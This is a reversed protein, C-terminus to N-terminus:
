FSNISYILLHACLKKKHNFVVCDEQPKLDLQPLLIQRLLDFHSLMWRPWSSRILCSIGTDVDCQKNLLCIALLLLLAKVKGYESSYTKCCTDKWQRAIRENDCCDSVCIFFFNSLQKKKWLSNIKSNVIVLYEGPSVMGYAM